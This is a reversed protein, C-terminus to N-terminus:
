PPVEGAPQVLREQAFRKLVNWKLEGRFTMVFCGVILCGVDRILLTMAASTSQTDSMTFCGCDFEHGRILNITILVSFGLLMLNVLLAASKPYIGLILAAGAYLELFPLIIATLNIAIEPVLQYGYIIKAFQAPNAIKHFCAGLFVLGLVWRAFLESWPNSFLRKFADNM